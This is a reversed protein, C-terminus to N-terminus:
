IHTTQLGLARIAAPFRLYPLDRSRVSVGGVNVDAGGGGEGLVLSPSYPLQEGPTNSRWNVM